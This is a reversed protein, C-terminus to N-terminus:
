WAQVAARLNRLEMHRSNWALRTSRLEMPEKLEVPLAARLSSVSGARLLQGVLDGRERDAQELGHPPHSPNSLNHWALAALNTFDKTPQPRAASWSRQALFRSTM